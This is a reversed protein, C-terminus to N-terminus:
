EKGEMKRLVNELAMLKSCAEHALHLLNTEEDRETLPDGNAQKAAAFQHRLSAAQYREPAVGLWSARDYPVPTKKTIAWQMVEVVAAIARPMDNLLTMDLKGSDDKRGAVKAPPNLAYGAAQVAQTSGEIFLSQKSM